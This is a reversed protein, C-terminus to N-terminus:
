WRATLGATANLTCFLLCLLQLNNQATRLKSAPQHGGPPTTAPKEVTCTLHNVLDRHGRRKSDM